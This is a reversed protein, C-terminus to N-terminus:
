VDEVEKNLRETWTMIQQLLDVKDLADQIVREDNYSGSPSVKVVIKDSM